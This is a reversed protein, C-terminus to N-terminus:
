TKMPFVSCSVSSNLSDGFAYTLLYPTTKKFLFFINLLQKGDYDIVITKLTELNKLDDLTANSEYQQLAVLTQSALDLAQIGLRKVIAGGSGINWNNLERAANEPVESDAKRTNIGGSFDVDITYEKPVNSLDFKQNAM